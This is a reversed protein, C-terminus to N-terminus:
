AFWGGGHLRTQPIFTYNTSNKKKKLKISLSKENKTKLVDSIVSAGGCSFKHHTIKGTKSLGVTRAHNHVTNYAFKNSEMSNKNLKKIIMVDRFIKYISICIVMAMIAQITIIIDEM